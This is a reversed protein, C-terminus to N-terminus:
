VPEALLKWLFLGERFLKIRFGMGELLKMTKSPNTGHGFFRSKVPDLIYLLGTKRLKKRVRHFAAEVDEVHHLSFLFAARDISNDPVNELKEASTNIVHINQIGLERIRQTLEKLYEESVDVAYVVGDSGVINSAPISLFGKGCGIDLFRHSPGVEM